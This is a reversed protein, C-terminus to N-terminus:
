RLAQEKTPREAGEPWELPDTPSSREVLRGRLRAAEQSLAPGRPKRSAHGCKLGASSASCTPRSRAVATLIIEVSGDSKRKACLSWRLMASYINIAGADATGSLEFAYVNITVLMRWVASQGRCSGRHETPASCLKEIENETACGDIVRGRAQCFQMTFDRSVGRRVRVRRRSIHSWGTSVRIVFPDRKTKKCASTTTVLESCLHPLGGPM